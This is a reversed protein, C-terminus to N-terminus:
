EARYQKRKDSVVFSQIAPRALQDLDRGLLTERSPTRRARDVASPDFCFIAIHDFPYRQQAFTRRSVAGGPCLARHGM